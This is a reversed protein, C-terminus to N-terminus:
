EMKSLLGEAWATLTETEKESLKMSPYKTVIKEPPMSGEELIELIEDLAAYADTGKM